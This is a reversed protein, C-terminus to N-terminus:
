PGKQRGLLRDIRVFAYGKNKLSTVLDDLRFYFKDKRDPHTGIHLLLIFGNLGRPDSKEFDFISRFIEASSRYNPLDPTTYDANAATGPSFNFLVLGLERAWAAIKENYWEYPPIFRPARAREVGFASMADYNRLIDSVFEAKTVLLTDRNEWSCYLLHKDSHPGLYHGDRKLREILPAKDAARYFDGTFFFGATVRNKKLVSAIHDGGDAFEHGTFVLAIEKRSPDARVVAGHDLVPGLATKQCRLCTAASASALLIAASSLFLTKLRSM